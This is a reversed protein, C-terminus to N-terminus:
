FGNNARSCIKRAPNGQVISYPEVDKTVISGAGIVAGEGITVGKLIVVNCGIIAGKKIVVRKKIMDQKHIPIDRKIMMHESTLISCRHGIRVDDEIILGGYGDIFVWENITVNKGIKVNYPFWITVGEYIRAKGMKKIFPKVFVFRLVSGIPPPFYKVLGYLNLYVGHVLYDIWSYSKEQTVM